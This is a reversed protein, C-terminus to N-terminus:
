SRGDELAEKQILALAIVAHTLSVMGYGGSALLDRAADIHKQYTTNNWKGATRDKTLESM